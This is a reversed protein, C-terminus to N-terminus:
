KKQLYDITFDYFIGFLPIALIAGVPGWLREGILLSVIVLVAPLNILKTSLIPMVINAEAAHIVVFAVAIIVAMQWSQTLAFLTIVSGSLVPGIFPVIDAIAALIGFLIPYRIGLIICILAVLIGVVLMSLFRAAFWGSIKRQTRKWADLMTKEYKKPFMIIIFNEIGNEELSFFIAITFVTLSLLIGGFISAVSSIISSSAGVLWDKLAATFTETSQFVDFGLGSLMPSVKGFYIPFNQSFHQIEIIFIPSISYIVLGIFGFIAVYVVFTALTRPLKLRQFFDIAPGLLVSIILGFLIYVLIDKIL